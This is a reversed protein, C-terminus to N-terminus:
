RHLRGVLHQLDLGLSRDAPVFAAFKSGAAVHLDVELRHLITLVTATDMSGLAVRLPDALAPPAPAFPLDAWYAVKFQWRQLTERARHLRAVSLAAPRDIPFRLLALRVALADDGDLMEAMCAAVRPSALVPGVLLTRRGPVPGPGASPGGSASVVVDAPGGIIAEAQGPSSTRVTPCAIWLADRQTRPASRAGDGLEILAPEGTGILGVTRRLVDAVMSLRVGRPSSEDLSRLDVVLHRPVGPVGVAVVAAIRELMDVSGVEM